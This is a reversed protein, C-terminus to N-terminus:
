KGTVVIESINSWTNQDNGHAVYKIYRASVGKLDYIEFSGDKVTTSAKEIVPTYNINDESVLVSFTYVRTNHAQFALHLKDLTKVSSLDLVGFGDNGATDPKVAWKTSFNGDFIFKISNSGDDGSQLAAYFTLAKDIDHQPKFEQVETASTYYIIATQSADIWNVVAGFSESIFRLPVLFRGNIIVAPSDLKYEVGNVYAIDSNETIKISADFNTATASATAEDWLVEANFKEFIARMPVMTRSNILQPDVDFKMREGNLIVNVKGPVPILDSVSTEPNNFPDNEALRFTIKGTDYYDRKVWDPMVDFPSRPAKKVDNIDAGLGNAPAVFGLEDITYEFPAYIIGSPTDGEYNIAKGYVYNNEYILNTANKDGTVSPKAGKYSVIANNYVKGEPPLIRNSANDSSPSYEGGRIALDTNIFTNNHIDANKVDLYEHILPNPNSNSIYVADSSVPTNYFYNNFVNHNEGIVRVGTTRGTQEGGIVLNGSVQTSNGHRLVIAGKNNYLTNNLVYNNCSKVSITEVEGNCEEFFCGSVTSYSGSLSQTSTGIRITEYGNASSEKFDGFYSNEIIHYNPSEDTRIIEAMMGAATKGRLYCSSVKNHSGRIYIWKQTTTLDVPDCNIFACEKIQCYQTDAEFVFIFKTTCGEFLLGETILYSGTVRIDSDGTLKVKGANKAKLVIPNGEAGNAKFTIRVNSYTGDPIEIVDGPKAAAIKENIEKIVESSPDTVVNGKSVKINDIYGAGENANIVSIRMRLYKTGEPATETMSVNTWDSAGKGVSKHSLTNKEADLFYCYIRPFAGSELMYDASITYIGPEIEITTSIQPTTETSADAVYLSCKGDSAKDTVIKANENAYDNTTWKDLGNEFSETFLVGDATPVAPTTAATSGSSANATKYVKINDIYTGGMGTSVGSILIVAKVSSAPAEVTASSEKWEKEKTYFSKSLLNKGSEDLFRLYVKNSATDIVKFDATAKYTAGAIVDFEKSTIFPSDGASNDIIKVSNKGDSGNATDLSIQAKSYDNKFTWGGLGNEFSDAFVLEEEAFANFSVLSFLMSATILLSLLKKM